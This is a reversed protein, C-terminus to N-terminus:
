FDWVAGRLSALFRSSILCKYSVINKLANALNCFGVIEEDHKNTQKDRDTQIDTRM